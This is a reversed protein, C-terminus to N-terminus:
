KTDRCECSEYMSLFAYSSIKTIGDLMNATVETLTDDVIAKFASYDKQIKNQLIVQSM